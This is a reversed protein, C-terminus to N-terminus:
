LYLSTILDEHPWFASGAQAYQTYHHTLFRHSIAFGSVDHCLAHSPQMETIGASQQQNSNYLRLHLEYLLTGTSSALSCQSLMSLRKELESTEQNIQEEALAPDANPDATKECVICM